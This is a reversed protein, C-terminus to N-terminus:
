LIAGSEAIKQHDSGLGVGIELVNKGKYNNFQGFSLIEPELFYREKSQNEFRLKLSDGKMYLDEGCSATNWFDHVLQKQTEM